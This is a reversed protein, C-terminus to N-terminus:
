ANRKAKMKTMTKLDLGLDGLGLAKLKDLQHKMKAKEEPSVLREEKSPLARPAMEPRTICFYPEFYARLQEDTMAELTDADCDLLESLTM